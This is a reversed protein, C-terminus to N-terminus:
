YLIIIFHTINSTMKANYTMPLAPLLGIITLTMILITMKGLAILTVTHLVSTSKIKKTSFKSSM